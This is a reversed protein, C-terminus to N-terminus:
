AYKIPPLNILQVEPELSIGFKDKVKQGYEKALNYFDEAKGFGSNIFLNAHYAAIAIGDLHKGKAGVAELLYGATVKGYVIKDPPILKLSQPSLTIALINKFFSGPCKIDPHYKELRQSLIHKAEQALSIKETPLLKFQASLIIQPNQKFCSQRYDFGCEDPTLKVIQGHGYVTVSELCDSISQGYAGANGYIAGGVTGPIGTLKHLGALNNEISFNVLQSLPTGSQVTVSNDEAKIGLFSNKIVLGEVGSDAVLLNSGSGIVLFSLQYNQAIELTHIFEDQTFVELFYKAPGGINLTTLASMPFNQTLRPGFLKELADM